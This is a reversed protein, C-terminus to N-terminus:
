NTRYFRRTAGCKPCKFSWNRVQRARVKKDYDCKECRTRLIGKEAQEEVADWYQWSDMEM